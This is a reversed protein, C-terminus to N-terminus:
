TEWKENTAVNGVFNFRINQHVNSGDVHHEVFRFALGILQHDSMIASIELILRKRIRCEEGGGAQRDEQRKTHIM